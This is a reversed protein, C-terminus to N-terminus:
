AGLARVLATSGAAVVVVVLMPARLWIAVGAAGIGVLRADIALSRGVGFVSTAVLAAILAPALLSVSAAVRPPLPRGGLLIPGLSKILITGAGVLAVVTWTETM